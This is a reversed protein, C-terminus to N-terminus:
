NHKQPTSLIKEIPTRFSNLVSLPLNVSFEQKVFEEICKLVFQLKVEPGKLVEAQNIFDPLKEFVKLIILDMENLIKKKKLSIVLITSIVSILIYLLIKFLEKNETIFQIISKM